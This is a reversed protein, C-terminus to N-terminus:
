VRESGRQWFATPEEDRTTFWPNIIHCRTYANVAEVVGGQYFSFYDHILVMGGKRVKPVYNILDLAIMDFDHDGDIHVFDLSGGALHAHATRSSERIFTVNFPALLKQAEAFTNDQKEQSKRPRYVNYPDICTLKLGPCHDCWLKASHGYHTGIEAGVKYGLDRMMRALLMRGDQRRRRSKIGHPLNDLDGMFGFHARLSQMFDPM